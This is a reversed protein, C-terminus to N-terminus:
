FNQSYSLVQLYKEHVKKAAILEKAYEFGAAISNTKGFCYFGAGANLAILLSNPHKANSEAMLSQFLAANEKANGVIVDSDLKINLEKPNFIRREKKEKTIEFIVSDHTLSLEDFGDLGVIVLGKEVGLHPLANALKEAILESTTGLIQYKVRAPNCLPGILNFITRGQIQNRAPAVHKMALHFYRAFLFCINTQKFLKILFAPDDHFPIKLEELFNFSGNETKSGKNGHKIVPVGGAALVFASATSINFRPKNSGGTGCTDIAIQPLDIKKVKELMAKAFGMIESVSEGKSAMDNLLHKIEEADCQGTFILQLAEYAETESLDIGKNIISLFKELM